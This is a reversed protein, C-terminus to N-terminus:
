SDMQTLATMLIADLQESGQETSSSALALIDTKCARYLRNQHKITTM